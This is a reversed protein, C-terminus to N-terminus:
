ALYREPSDLPNVVVKKPKFNYESFIFIFPSHQSEWLDNNILVFLDRCENFLDAGLRKSFIEDVYEAFYNQIAWAELRSCKLEGNKIYCTFDNNINCLLVYQEGWESFNTPENKCAWTLFNYFLIQQDPTFKLKRM